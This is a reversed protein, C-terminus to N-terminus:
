EFKFMPVLPRLRFDKGKLIASAIRYAFVYVMYALNWTTNVLITVVTRGFPVSRVMNLKATERRYHFATAYGGGFHVVVPNVKRGYLTFASGGLLTDIHFRGSQGEPYFMGAPYEEVPRFGFRAMAIGMLPEENISGRHRALGLQDYRPILQRIYLFAQEAVPGKEFYYVGGNFHPMYDIGLQERLLAIDTGFIRGDNQVRGLVSFGHGSFREFMEDLPGVVLCDSDIFLTNDYPSYAYINTKQVLGMGIGPDPEVVLDFERVSKAEAQDSVVCVSLGPNHLKVSRALNEAMVLYRQHGTAITIIGKTRM